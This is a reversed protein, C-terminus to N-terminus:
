GEPTHMLYTQHTHKICKMIGTVVVVVAANSIHVNHTLRLPVQIQRTQQIFQMIRTSTVVVLENTLPDTPRPGHPQM